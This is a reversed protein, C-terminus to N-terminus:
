FVPLNIMPYLRGKRDGQIIAHIDCGTRHGGVLRGFPDGRSKLCLYYKEILSVIGKLEAL